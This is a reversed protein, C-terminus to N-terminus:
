LLDSAMLQNKAAVLGDRLAVYKEPPVESLRKANHKAFVAMASQHANPHGSSILAVLADNVAQFDPNSLPLKSAAPSAVPAPVSPAAVPLPVPDNLVAPTSPQVLDAVGSDPDNHDINRDDTTESEVPNSTARPKRGRKAPAPTVVGTAANVADGTGPLHQAAVPLSPADARSEVVTLVPPREMPVERRPAPADIATPQEFWRGFHTKCLAVFDAAEAVDAFDHAVSITLKM